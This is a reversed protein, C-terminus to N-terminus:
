VDTSHMLGLAPNEISKVLIQPCQGDQQGHKLHQGLPQMEKDADKEYLLMQHSDHQRRRVHINFYPQEGKPCLLMQFMTARNGM